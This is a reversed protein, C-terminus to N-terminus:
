QHDELTEAWALLADLRRHAQAMRSRLAANEARLRRWSARSDVLPDLETAAQELADRLRTVEEEALLARARWAQLASMAETATRELRDWAAPLEAPAHEAVGSVM